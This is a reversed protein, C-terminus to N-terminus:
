HLRRSDTNLLFHACHMCLLSHGRDLDLVHWPRVDEVVALTSTPPFAGREYWARAVGSGRLRLRM